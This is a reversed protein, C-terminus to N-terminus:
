SLGHVLNPGYKTPMDIPQNKNLVSHLILICLTLARPLVALFYFSVIYVRIGTRFMPAKYVVYANIQLQGHDRAPGYRRSHQGTQYETNVLHLQVWERGRGVGRQAM